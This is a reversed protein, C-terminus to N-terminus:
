RSVNWILYSDKACVPTESPLNLCVQYAVRDGNALDPQPPLTISSTGQTDTPPIFYRISPRDQFSLVLSAEVREIPQGSSKQTVVVRIVQSDNDNLTPKDVSATLAIKDPGFLNSIRADEPAPYRAIFEKGLPALRVKMLDSASPDYDLCYNEFCQRYINQGPLLFVESIPDGSFERGGHQAIFADLQRPVNHGLGGRVEYFVLQDHIKREVPAQVEYGLMRPLPRLRVESLDDSPAYFVANAYVQELYGDEAIQPKLLLDGFVAPGGLRAISAAFPQEATNSKVISWYENLRYSCSGGCLYAGYPILYVPGNPDNLNQYFGVNEFFQEARQLDQNIRLETLPRGVYRAGFLQDYLPIFREYITFGDVVRANQDESVDNAHADEQVGLERGLPYLNFRNEDTVTPNFCMLVRETFQCQLGDRIELASIAPGLVQKGGLTQYFEKFIADVPFVHPGQGLSTSNGTKDGCATLLLVWILFYAWLVARRLKGDGM